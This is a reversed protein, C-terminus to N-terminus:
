EQILYITESTGNYTHTIDVLVSTYEETIRQSGDETIRIDGSETIRVDLSTPNAPVYLDVYGTTTMTSPTITVGSTTSSLDVQSAGNPVNVPYSYTGGSSSISIQPATMIPRFDNLLIANVEGTTLDTTINNIIYRKDRIIVRDNLKISTVLSIPLIMRVTTLRQKLNFLNALYSFYYTAFLTNNQEGTLTGAHSSFNSTYVSGNAFVEQGFPMYNTITAVTTNNDFKFSCSQSDYMYLLCPKPIYKNYAKDLTYAVQFQTGTFKTHLLNEFPQEIKLEQGDYDYNAKSDGYGRSNNANAFGVNLFSESKQYEFSISKYLQPRSIEINDIDVYKTVDIIAGQSYWDDLPEIRFSNIATAYCTLNFEKLIGSFFDSITIDPAKISLDTVNTTTINNCTIELSQGYTTSQRYILVKPRVTLPNESIIKFSYTQESYDVEKSTYVTFYGGITGDYEWTSYLGYNRYVEIKYAILTVPMFIVINTKKIIAPQKIMLTNGLVRANPDNDVLSSTNFVFDLPQSWTTNVDTNKYWLFLKKFRNDSLFNGTFTVSYKTEILDFLSKVRVAPFLETYNMHHGTSTIDDSGGGTVVWLRNSSILPYRVDYTDTTTTIRNQVEAGTYTHNISSYDLDKLKDTGFKDKLTVLDGYFTITYSEVRNHKMNAKELQIKGTRFPTLEVEIFALRRKNHDITGNVASEYFHEFIRNNLPTAPVTFSQSYDTYVKSIDQINQVSLTISIKEDNFLEIKEYNNASTEIWIDVKRIM